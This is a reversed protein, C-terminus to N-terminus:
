TKKTQKSKPRKSKSQKKLPPYKDVFERPKMLKLSRIGTIGLKLRVAEKLLQGDSTIFFDCGDNQAAAVATAFHIVDKTQLNSYVSIKLALQWADDENLELFGINPLEAIVQELWESVQQFDYQRLKRDNRPDRIRKLITNLSSGKSLKKWLYLDNKKYDILEIMGLTSVRLQWGRTKLSKMLVVAESDKDIFDLIVNTDLYVIRNKRKRPM